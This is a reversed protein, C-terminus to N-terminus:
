ISKSRLAGTRANTVNTAASSQSRRRGAPVKALDSSNGALRRRESNTEAAYRRLLQDLTRVLEDVHKREIIFPPLLRIVVEHTRNVILGHAMAERAVFKAAEADALEVGIMLGLGRIERVLAHRAQLEELRARLYAGINAVHRLLGESEITSLVALAVACTLPGGGFTTGHLGPKIAKAVADTTLFAGLPLGGGLPKAITVIDPRIGAHQYAFWKGTRGLGSQIEDAILLAGHKHTLARARTLFERSVNHIGGEGQVPEVILACVSADLKRELDAVDNFKVFRVGQMLPAFPARYKKTWTTSLAAFTRGHFSNELAVVHTKKQFGPRLLKRTGAKLRAHARALKLAGEVAESGSNTFFARDLGSIAELKRALEAQYDHFFLNSTHLLGRAVQEEIARVIAPHGYGLANVGIGSLFDLYRRGEADYVYVGRGRRLLVQYRDYTPLLTGAEAKKVSALTAVVEHKTAASATV